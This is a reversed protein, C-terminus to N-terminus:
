AVSVPTAAPASTRVLGDPACAVAIPDVGTRVKSYVNPTTVMFTGVADVEGVRVHVVADIAGGAAPRVTFALDIRHPVVRRLRQRTIPLRAGMEMDVTHPTHTLAVLHRLSDDHDVLLAPLPHRPRLFRPTSSDPTGREAHPHPKHKRM